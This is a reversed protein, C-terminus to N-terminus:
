DCVFDNRRADSPEHSHREGVVLQAVCTALVALVVELTDSDPLPLVLLLDRFAAIAVPEHLTGMEDCEQLLGHGTASSTGTWRVAENMAPSPPVGVDIVLAEEGGDVAEERRGVDRAGPDTAESANVVPERGMGIMGLVRRGRGDLLQPVGLM